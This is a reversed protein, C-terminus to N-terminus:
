RVWPSKSYDQRAASTLGGNGWATLAPRMSGRNDIGRISSVASERGGSALVLGRSEGHAGEAVRVRLRVLEPGDVHLAGAERHGVALDAGRPLRGRLREGRGLLAGRLGVLEDALLGALAVDLRRGLRGYAVVLRELFGQDGVGVVARRPAGVRVVQALLAVGAALEHGHLDREFVLRQGLGLPRRELLLLRGEELGVLAVPQPRQGREREVVNFRFLLPPVRLNLVGEAAAPHRFQTDGPQADAERPGDHFGRPQLEQM